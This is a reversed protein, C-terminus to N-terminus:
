RADGLVRFNVYAQKCCSLCYSRGNIKDIGCFIWGLPNSASGDRVPWRCPNQSPGLMAGGDATFKPRTARFVILESRAETAILAKVREIPVPEPRVGIQGFGVPALARTARSLRPRAGLVKPIALAGVGEIRHKARSPRVRKKKETQVKIPSPRSLGLRGAKGVVANKSAGIKKGIANTSMGTPWLELLRAIQGDTMGTTRVPSLIEEVNLKWTGPGRPPLPSQVVSISGDTALDQLARGATEPHREIMSAIANVMATACGDIALHKLALFVRQHTEMKEPATFKLM